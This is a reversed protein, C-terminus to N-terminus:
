ETTSVRVQSPFVVFRARDPVRRRESALALPTADKGLRRLAIEHAVDLPVAVETPPEVYTRPMVFMGLADSPCVATAKARVHDCGGLGMPDSDCALIEGGESIYFIRVVLHAARKSKHEYAVEEPTAELELRARAYNPRPTRRVRYPKIGREIQELVAEREARQDAYHPHREDLDTRWSFSTQGGSANRM